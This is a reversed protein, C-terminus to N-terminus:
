LVRVKNLFRIEKNIQYLKKLEKEFQEECGELPRYKIISLTEEM